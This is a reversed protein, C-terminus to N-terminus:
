ELAVISYLLMCHNAGLYIIFLHLAGFCNAATKPYDVCDFLITMENEYV